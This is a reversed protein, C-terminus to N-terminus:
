SVKNKGQVPPSVDWTWSGTSWSVGTDWFWVASVWVPAAQVEGWARQAVAAAPLHPPKPFYEWWLVCRLSVPPVSDALSTSNYCKLKWWICNISFTILCRWEKYVKSHTTSKFLNVHCNGMLVGYGMIVCHCNFHYIRTYIIHCTEGKQPLSSKGGCDWQWCHCSRKRACSSVAQHGCFLCAPILVLKRDTNCSLSLKTSMQIRITQSTQSVDSPFEPM